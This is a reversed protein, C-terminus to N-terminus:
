RGEVFDRQAIFPSANGALDAGAVCFRWPSQAKPLTEWFSLPTKYGRMDHCDTSSLPGYKIQISAIEYRSTAGYVWWAQASEMHVRILPALRPPTDDIELWKITAFQFSQWPTHADRKGVACIVRIGEGSEVPLDMLPQLAVPVPEGYGKPSGCDVEDAWGTKYRMWEFATDARLSWTAWSGDPHSPKSWRGERALGIGDGRDLVSLDLENSATLARALTDIPMHYSTHERPLGQHGLIECPRGLGCGSMGETSTTNLVGVIRSQGRILVPSGSTGGAVGACENPSALDWRWPHLGEYLPRPTRAQCTSLRLFQEDMPVGEVPAHALDVDLDLVIQAPQLTMPEIGRAALQGYTVGLRLVALDAGKMTAYLVREVSVSEHQVQNDIFYGPTFRWLPAAPKDIVVDNDGMLENVCHGATLLLAAQGPAPISTGAIVTATCTTGTRLRGVPKFRQADLDTSVLLRAEGTQSREGLADNSVALGLLILLAACAGHRTSALRGSTGKM